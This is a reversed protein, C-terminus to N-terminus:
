KGGKRNRKRELYERGVKIKAASLDSGQKTFERMSKAAEAVPILLKAFASDSEARARVDDPLGNSFITGYNICLDPEMMPPGLYIVKDPKKDSRSPSPAPKAQAKEEKKGANESM